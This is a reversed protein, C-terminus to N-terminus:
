NFHNTDPAALLPSGDPGHLYGPGPGPFQILIFNVSRWGHRWVWANMFIIWGFMKQVWWKRRQVLHLCSGDSSWGILPCHKYLTVLWLGAFQWCQDRHMMRLIIPIESEWCHCHGMGPAETGTCHDTDCLWCRAIFAYELIECKMNRNSQIAPRDLIKIKSKQCSLCVHITDADPPQLHYYHSVSHTMRATSVAVNCQPSCPYNVTKLIFVQILPILSDARISM